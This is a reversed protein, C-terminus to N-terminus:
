DDAQIKAGSMLSLGKLMDLADDKPSDGHKKLKTSNKKISNVENVPSSSLLSSLRSVKGGGKINMTKTARKLFNRAEEVKGDSPPTYSKKVEPIFSIDEDASSTLQSSVKPQEIFKAKEEWPSAFFRDGIVELCIKFEGTPLTKMVNSLPPVDFKVINAAGEKQYNGVFGYEIDVFILRLMYRFSEAQSGEVDLSFTISKINDMDFQLM